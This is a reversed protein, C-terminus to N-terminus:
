VVSKRDREKFVNLTQKENIIPGKNNLVRMVTSTEQDLHQHLELMHLGVPNEVIRNGLSRFVKYYEIYGSKDTVVLM